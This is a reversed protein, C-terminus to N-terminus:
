RAEALCHVHVHVFQGPVLPAFRLDVGVRGQSLDESRISDTGCRVSFAEAESAGPFAGAIFLGHMFEEAQAAIHTWLAPENREFRTWELAPVLSDELFNAMRRVPIHALQPTAHGAPHRTRASWCVAGLSSAM